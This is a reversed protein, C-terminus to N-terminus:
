EPIKFGSSVAAAIDAASLGLGTLFAVVANPPPVLCRLDDVVRLFREDEARDGCMAGDFLM